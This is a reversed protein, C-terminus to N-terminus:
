APVVRWERRDFVWGFMGGRFEREAAAQTRRTSEEMQVWKGTNLGRVELKWKPRYPRRSTSITFELM